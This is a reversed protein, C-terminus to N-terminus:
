RESLILVMSGSQFAQHYSSQNIMNLFLNMAFSVNGTNNDCPFYDSYENVAWM